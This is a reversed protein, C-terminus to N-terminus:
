WVFALMGNFLTLGAVVPFLAPSVRERRSNAVVLALIVVMVLLKVTARTENVPRDLGNNVAVLLVGTVLMTLASHLMGRPVRDTSRAGAFATVLLGLAGLLHLLYLLIRLVNM